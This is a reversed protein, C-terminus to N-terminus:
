STGKFPDDSKGIFIGENFKNQVEKELIESNVFGPIRNVFHNYDKILYSIEYIEDTIPEFTSNNTNNGCEVGFNANNMLKFFYREVDSKTTQKEKQNNLVFDKKFASQLFTYHYYIKTVGICM